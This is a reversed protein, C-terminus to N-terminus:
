SHNSLLPLGVIGILIFLLCVIRAAEFPENFVLIGYTAVGLAGIGTWIAYATGVPLTRISLNLFAFSLIAFICVFVSPIIKTFGESYKLMVAFGVEFTSASFLLIWATRGSPARMFFELATTFIQNAASM